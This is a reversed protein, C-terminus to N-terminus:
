HLYNETNEKCRPGKSLPNASGTSYRSFTREVFGPEAVFFKETRKSSSM